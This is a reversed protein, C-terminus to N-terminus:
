RSQYLSHLILCFSSVLLLSLLLSVLLSDSLPTSNDVFCTVSLPLSSSLSALESPRPPESISISPAGFAFFPFAFFLLIGAEEETVVEDSLSAASSSSFTFGSDVNDLFASLVYFCSALVRVRPVITLVSLPM